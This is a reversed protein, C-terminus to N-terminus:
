ADNRLYQNVLDTLPELYECFKDDLAHLAEQTADDDATEEHESSDDPYGAPYSLALAAQLLEKTQPAGIAELADLTQIAFQGSSNIFFQDFGGNNVEAELMHVLCAVQIPRSLSELHAPGEILIEDFDDPYKM